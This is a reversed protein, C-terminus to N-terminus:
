AVWLSSFSLELSARWQRSPEPGCRLSGLRPIQCLSQSDGPFRAQFTLPIQNCSNWLGPPFLSELSPLCSCFRAHVLVWLFPAAVWCFVLGFSAAPTPPDGTSAHTPLPGGCPHPCQCCLTLDWVRWNPSGCVPSRYNWLLEGSDHLNQVM